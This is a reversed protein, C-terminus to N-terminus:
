KPLLRYKLVLKECCDPDFGRARAYHRAIIVFQDDTIYLSRFHKCGMKMNVPCFTMRNVDVLQFNYHNDKGGFLINGPTFDKHFVHKDHMSAAFVAFDVLVSKMEETAPSHCIERFERNFPSKESVYYSEYLLGKRRVEIYAVHHPTDIAKELLLLANAYSRKAKSPRFHAYVVKNIIHPIKFSKVVFELGQQQFLKVENREKFITKGERHFAEPLREIFDSCFGYDPHIVVKKM